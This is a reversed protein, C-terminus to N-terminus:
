RGVRKLFDLVRSWMLEAEAPQYEDTKSADAFLHGKGPYDFVEITAGAAKGAVVSADIAEQERFPDDVTNHVQAPVGQPWPMDFWAPDLAAALLVIGRVGPRKFAVYGAMAGGQSFGMTVFGEPLDATLELSQALMAKTGVEEMYAMAPDYDDFTKGDYQDIVRVDHGHSCLMDAAQTIGPRVGLVSHFLAVTAM